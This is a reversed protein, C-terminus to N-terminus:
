EYNKTMKCIPHGTTITLSLDLNADITKIPYSKFAKGINILDERDSSLIILTNGEKIESCLIGSVSSINEIPTEVLTKVKDLNIKTGKSYQIM